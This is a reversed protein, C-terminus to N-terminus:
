PRLWPFQTLGSTAVMYGGAIPLCSHTSASRLAETQNPRPRGLWGCRDCRARFSLVPLHPWGTEARRTVVKIVRIPSLGLRPEGPIYVARAFGEGVEDQNPEVPIHFSSGLSAPDHASGVARVTQTPSRSVWLRSLVSDKERSVHDFQGPFAPNHEIRVLDRQLVAAEGVAPRIRVIFRQV